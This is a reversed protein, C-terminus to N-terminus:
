RVTRAIEIMQVVRQEYPPPRVDFEEVIRSNDFLYAGAGKEFEGGTDNDFGIDAAPIVKKVMDAIQGLSLTEGGTCYIDHEPQRKQGIRVFAEAADDIYICCRMRDLYSLNIVLNPRAGAFASMVDEFRGVDTRLVSVQKGLDSFDASAVDMCTVEYGRAALLRVIRRGLFGAGGLVCAKM